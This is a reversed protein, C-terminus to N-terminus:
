CHNAITTTKRMSSVYRLFQVFTNQYVHEINVSQKLNAAFAVVANLNQSGHETFLSFPLIMSAKPHSGGFHMGLTDNIAMDFCLQKTRVLRYLTGGDAGTLSKATQLIRELLANIDKIGNLEVSLETLHQLRQAIQEHNLESM